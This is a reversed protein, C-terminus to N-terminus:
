CVGCSKQCNRLMYGGNRQCQNGKSWVPCLQHKDFCETSGTNCANCSKRCIRLATAPNDECFGHKAWAQCHEKDDRCATTTKTDPTTTKTETKCEGCSKACHITMWKNIKCHGHKAWTDCEKDSRHNNSCSGSGKTTVTPQTTVETRDNTTSDGACKSCAKYCNKNMWISNKM